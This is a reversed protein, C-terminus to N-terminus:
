IGSLQLVRLGFDDASGAEALAHREIEATAHVRDQLGSGNGWHGVAGRAGRYEAYRPYAMRDRLYRYAKQFATRKRGRLGYHARFAASHLVRERRGAQAVM